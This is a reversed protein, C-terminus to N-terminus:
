FNKLLDFIYILKLYMLFKYFFFEDREVIRGRGDFIFKGLKKLTLWM